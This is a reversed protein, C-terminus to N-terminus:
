HVLALLIYTLKCATLIKFSVKYKKFLNKMNHKKASWLKVMGNLTETLSNENVLHSTSWLDMVVTIRFLM